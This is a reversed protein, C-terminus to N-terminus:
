NDFHSTRNCVYIFFIYWSQTRELDKTEFWFTGRQQVWQYNLVTVFLSSSVVQTERKAEFCTVRGPEFRAQSAASNDWSIPCLSWISVTLGISLKRRSNLSMRLHKNMKLISIEWSMNWWGSSQLGTKKAKEFFERFRKVFTKGITADFLNELSYNKLYRGESRNWHSMNWSLWVTLFQGQNM